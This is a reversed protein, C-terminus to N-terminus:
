FIIDDIMKDLTNSPLTNLYSMTSKIDKHGLAEKIIDISINNFKLITAFSHRACYYTIKKQIGLDTIMRKLPTNIYTKLYKEKKNNIYNHSDQNNHIINFLYLSDNPPTYELIKRKWYENLKFNVIVGTKSRKYTITDKYLDTKKLQMLDIFNIGRGYYSLLFMDRAIIDNRDFLEVNKLLELEEESLYEKKGSEKIKSVKFKGFPYMSVPIIERKIAKNFVARLTRIRIGITSQSNNNGHLFSQYKYIADVSLDRFTIETKGFFRQISKLTEKEINYTSLKGSNKIEDMLSEHFNTYSLAQQKGSNRKFKNIIDQMTFPAVDSEFEYIIDKVRDSYKGILENIQKYEKHSKKLRETEFSWDELSCKKRLSLSTNIRDKILVLVISYEGATNPSPKLTFKYSVM